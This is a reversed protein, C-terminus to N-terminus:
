PAGRLTTRYLIERDFLIDLLEGLKLGSLSPNSSTLDVSVTKGRSNIELRADGFNLRGDDTLEIPTGFIRATLKHTEFVEALPVAFRVTTQISSDSRAAATLWTDVIPVTIHLLAPDLEVAAVDDRYKFFSAGFTAVSHDGEAGKLGVERILDKAVRMAESADCDFYMSIEYVDAGHRGLLSATDSGTSGFIAGYDADVFSEPVTLSFESNLTALINNLGDAGQINFGQLLGLPPAVQSLDVGFMGLPVVRIGRSYAYGAEFFVWQSRVAAPSLFVFMLTSAKLEDEIRHVWNRGLPISQGDSALFFSIANNTKAALHQKLNDLKIADASAHSLFVTPKVSSMRRRGLKTNSSSRPERRRRCLRKRCAELPIAASRHLPSPVRCMSRHQGRRVMRSSAHAATTRPEPTRSKSRRAARGEKEAVRRHNGAGADGM